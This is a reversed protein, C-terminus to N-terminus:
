HPLEAAAAPDAFLWTSTRRVRHNPLTADGDM